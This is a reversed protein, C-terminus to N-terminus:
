NCMYGSIYLVEAPFQDYKIDEALKNIPFLLSKTFNLKYASFQIFDQFVELLCPISTVPNSIYLPLDDANLSVM